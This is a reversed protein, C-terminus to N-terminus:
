ASTAIANRRARGFCGSFIESSVSRGPAHLEEEPSSGVSPLAVGAVAPEPEYPRLTQNHDPAVSRWTRRAGSGGDGRASTSNPPASRETGVAYTGVVAIAWFVVDRGGGLLSM